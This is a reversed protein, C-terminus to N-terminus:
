ARLSWVREIVYWMETLSRFQPFRKLTAVGCEGGSDNGRASHFENEHTDIEHNGVGVQFYAREHLALMQRLVVMVASGGFWCGGCCGCGDAAARVMWPMMTALPQILDFYREWIWPWGRAYSIDGNVIM